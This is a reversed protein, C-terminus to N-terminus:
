ADWGMLQFGTDYPIVVVNDYSAEFSSKAYEAHSVNSVFVIDFSDKKTPLRRQSVLASSSSEMKQLGIEFHKNQSGGREKVYLWRLEERAPSYQITSKDFLEMADVIHFRKGVIM